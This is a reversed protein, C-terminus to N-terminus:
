YVSRAEELRLLLRSMLEPKGARLTLELANGTRPTGKHMGEHTGDLMDALMHEFTSVSPYEAWPAYRRMRM